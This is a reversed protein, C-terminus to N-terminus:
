CALSRGTIPAIAVLFNFSGINKITPPFLFTGGWMRSVNSLKACRDYLSAVKQVAVKHQSESETGRGTVM